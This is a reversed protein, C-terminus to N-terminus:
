QEKLKYDFINPGLLGFPGLRVGWLSNRAWGPDSACHHRDASSTWLHLHGKGAGAQSRCSETERSSSARHRLAATLEPCACYPGLARQRGQCLRGM